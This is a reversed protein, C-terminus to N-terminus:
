AARADLFVSTGSKYVVIKGSDSVARGSFDFTENLGYLPSFDSAMGEIALSLGAPSLSIRYFRSGITRPVSLVISSNTDKKECVKIISSLIYEKVGTIQDQSSSSTYYNQYMAFLAFSVVFIAVSISFILVQEFVLTQGKTKMSM